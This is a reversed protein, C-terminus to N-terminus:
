HTVLRVRFENRKKVVTQAMGTIFRLGECVDVDGRYIGAKEARLKFIISQSAGASVPVDFTFSRSNDIPVHMNSKPTPEISAVTFGALYEEAIDVDSLGLVKGSRENKVVVEFDFTQGVVVDTPANITVAVGEVDKAVYAVFLGAAVLILTLAACGFKLTKKTIM